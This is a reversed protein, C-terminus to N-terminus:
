TRTRQTSKDNHLIDCVSSDAEWDCQSNKFHKLFAKVSHQSLYYDLSNPLCVTHGSKKFNVAVFKIAFTTWINSARKPQKLFCMKIYFSSHSSKYAIKPFFPQKHLCNKSFIAVKYELMQDRQLCLRLCNKEREREESFGSEM